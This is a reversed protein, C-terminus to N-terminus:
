QSRALRRATEALEAALKEPDVRDAAMVARILPDSLAENLSMEECGKMMPANKWERPTLCATRMM